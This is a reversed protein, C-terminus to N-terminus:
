GPVRVFKAGIGRIWRRRRFVGGGNSQSGTQGQATTNGEITQVWGTFTDGSWRLALVREVIGIHDDYAYAGENFEFCVLDGRRPRKVLWSNQKAASLLAGVSAGGPLTFGVRKYMGHVFSCCWYVGVTGCADRNWQDIYYGRNSNPPHETTGIYKQAWGLARLRLAPV